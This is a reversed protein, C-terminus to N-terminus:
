IKKKKTKEIEILKKDVIKNIKYREKKEIIKLGPESIKRIFKDM